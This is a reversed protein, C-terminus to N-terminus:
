NSDTCVTGAAPLTLSILYTDEAQQACRSKDYSVHGNGQRTLLVSGALQQNVAQAWAYPTAPDNTGGVLLIPPAGDATLPGPSGKAPVPWYACVLNSYQEAPGLIQSAAAYSPGLSDYASIDSPVPRDVCNIAYNADNENDYTGDAHRSLYLDSFQLLIAGNGQDAATLGQDLFSWTSPDYLPTIIGIIALSRTLHRSGVQMPDTDLRQLLDSIKTLPDGSRGFTCSAHAKCDTAFAELNAQFSKVQALLMDNPSVTPDIVGDLSLARVHTPFLHAYMEGLFTGYSFGLYSLKEDGLAARIQDMDRAASETDVFPLIDASMQECGAAFDKDAQIGAAKEQPDDWVPDLANFTDEQPGTLCKVPASQGVGRPDFGILDFRKNLDAMGGAAQRLYQIGSAGPGGPNTLLSGIRNAQDLAPKRVIALNITKGNDPHSYDLPVTLTACQFGGGCTSWSVGQTSGSPSASPTTASSSTTAGRTCAALLVACALALATSRGLV